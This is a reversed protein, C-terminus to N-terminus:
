LFYATGQVNETGRSSLAPEGFPDGCVEMPLLTTLDICGAPECNELNVSTMTKPVSAVPDYHESSVTSADRNWATSRGESRGKLLRGTSRPPQFYHISDLDVFAMVLKSLIHLLTRFNSPSTAYLIRSFDASAAFSPNYIDM